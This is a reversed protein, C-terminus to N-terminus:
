YFKWQSAFETAAYAGLCSRAEDDSVEEFDEYFDELRHFTEPMLLTILEDAEKSLVQVACKTAVPVAVIIKAPQSKRITRISTLLSNGTDAGDDVLIVTRGDLKDPSKNGMLQHYMGRLQKHIERLENRIYTGTIDEHSGVLYDSLSAAGIAYEKNNPHGIKRTCVLDVPWDIRAAVEYAVPIGGNPIALIVGQDNVFHKLHASLQIGADSRNKFM